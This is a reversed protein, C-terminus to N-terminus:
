TTGSRARGALRHWHRLNCCRWSLPWHLLASSTEGVVLRARDGSSSLWDPDDRRRTTGCHRPPIHACSSSSGQPQAAEAIYHVVSRVQTARWASVRGMTPDIVRGSRIPGSTRSGNPVGSAVAQQAVLGARCNTPGGAGTPHSRGGDDFSREHWRVPTAARDAARQIPASQGTRDLGRLWSRAACRRSRQSQLRPSRCALRYAGPRTPRRLRSTTSRLGPGSGSCGARQEPQCRLVRTWTSWTCTSTPGCRAYFRRVAPPSTACGTSRSAPSM